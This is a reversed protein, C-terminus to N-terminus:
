AFFLRSFFAWFGIQIEDSIKFLLLVLGDLLLLRISSDFVLVLAHTHELLM